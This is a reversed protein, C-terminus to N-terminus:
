SKMVSNNMETSEPRNNFALLPKADIDAVNVKWHLAILDRLINKGWNGCGVLGIGTM